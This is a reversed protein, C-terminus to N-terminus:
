RANKCFSIREASASLLLAGIVLLVVYLPTLFADSAARLGYRLLLPLAIGATTSLAFGSRSFKDSSRLLRGASTVNNGFRMEHNLGGTRSTSVAVKM